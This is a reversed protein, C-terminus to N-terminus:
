HVRVNYALSAPTGTGCVYVTVTNASTVSGRINFAGGIDAGTTTSVSVPSGVVAGTVTATGSDCTATLATGTITGTTGTLKFDVPVPTMGIWAIQYSTGANSWTDLIPGMVDGVTAGSLDATWSQVTWTNAFTLTPGISPTTNLTLDKILGRATCSAVGVCQAMISVVVKTRPVIASPGGNSLTNSVGFTRAAGAWANAAATSSNRLDFTQTPGTSQFYRKSIETGNPDAVCTGSAGAISPNYTFTWDSCTTLLDSANFYPTTSSGSLLFSGDLKGIGDRSPLLSPNYRRGQYSNTGSIVLADFVNNHGNDIIGGPVLNPNRFNNMNGDVKIANGLEGDVYSSNANFEVWGVGVSSGFVNAATIIFHGLTGGMFRAFEGSQEYGGEMYLGHITWGLIGNTGVLFFPGNELPYESYFNLNQLVRDNGNYTVMPLIAQFFDMDKFSSTDATGIAGSIPAAEIYGGYLAVTRIKEFHCGYMPMQTFIATSHSATLYTKPTQDFQLNYMNWASIGGVPCANGNSCQIAIGANGIYWPPLQANLMNGNANTVATTVAPSVTIVCSALGTCGSTISSITGSYMGAANGAETGSGDVHKFTIAFQSGSLGAALVTYATTSNFFTSPTFGSLVVTNGAALTNTSQFTAVNGSIVWSTVAFSTGAGNINIPAGNVLTPDIQGVAYTVPFTCSFSASTTSITVGGAACAGTGFSIPGPVIPLTFPTLNQVTGAKRNPFTNNGGAATAAANISTDIVISLDHIATGAPFSFTNNDPSQFVDLGPQGKIFTIEQGAGFFSQGKYVITSTLCTGAPFQIQWKNTTAANFAAQIATQDDTLGDCKANYPPAIVSIVKNASVYASPGSLINGTAADVTFNSPNITSASANPYRAFALQGPNVTGTGGPTINVWTLCSITSASTCQRTVINNTNFYASGLVPKIVETDAYGRANAGPNFRPAVIKPSIYAGADFSATFIGVPPLTNCPVSALPCVTFIWQTGGPAIGDNRFLTPPGVFSGTNDLVMPVPTVPAGTSSNVPTGGAPNYITATIQAGAWATGDSDTVTGTLTASQCFAVTVFYFLGALALSRTIMKRM